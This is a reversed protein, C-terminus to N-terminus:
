ADALIGRFHDKSDPLLPGVINNAIDLDQVDAAKMLRSVKCDSDPLGRITAMTIASLGRAQRDVIAPVM